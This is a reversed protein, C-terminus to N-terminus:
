DERREQLQRRAQRARELYREVAERGSRAGVLRDRAIQLAQDSAGSARSAQDLEVLAHELASRCRRSYAAGVMALAATTGAAVLEALRVEARHARRGATEVVLTAEALARDCATSLEVAAAVQGSEAMQAAKRLELLPVFRDPDDGAM